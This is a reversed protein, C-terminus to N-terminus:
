GKLASFEFLMIRYGIGQHFFNPPFESGFTFNRDRAKNRRQDMGLNPTFHFFSDYVFADLASSMRVNRHSGIPVSVRSPRLSKRRYRLSRKEPGSQFVDRWTM